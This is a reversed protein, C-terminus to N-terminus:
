NWLTGDLGLVSGMWLGIVYVLLGLATAAIAKWGGEQRYRGMFAYFLGGTAGALPVVVLPRIMWYKGWAPDPNNVGTLFIVILLLALGAGIAAFKLASPPLLPASKLSNETSHTAM